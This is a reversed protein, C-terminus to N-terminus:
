PKELGHQANETQELSEGKGLEGAEIRQGRAVAEDGLAHRVSVCM